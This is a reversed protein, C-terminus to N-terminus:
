SSKGEVAGSDALRVLLEDLEADTQPASPGEILATLLESTTHPQELLRWLDAGGELAFPELERGPVLIVVDDLAERFLM